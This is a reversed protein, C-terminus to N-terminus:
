AKTFRNILKGIFKGELIGIVVWIPLFIIMYIVISAVATVAINDTKEYLWDYIATFIPECFLKGIIANFVGVIFVIITFIVKVKKM